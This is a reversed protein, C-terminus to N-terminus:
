MNYLNKVRVGIQKVQRTAIHRMFAKGKTFIMDYVRDELVAVHIINKKLGSIFMVDKLRLPSGSEKQFTVVGVGTASYREDDGLEIHM